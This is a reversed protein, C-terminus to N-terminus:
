VKLCCCWELKLREGQKGRRPFHRAVALRYLDILIKGGELGEGQGAVAWIGNRCDLVCLASFSSDEFCCWLDVFPLPQKEGAGTTIINHKRWKRATAAIDGKKWDYPEGSYVERVNREFFQLLFVAKGGHERTKEQIEGGPAGPNRRLLCNRDNWAGCKGTM